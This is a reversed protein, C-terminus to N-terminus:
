CIQLSRGNVFSSLDDAITSKGKEALQIKSPKKFIERFCDNM